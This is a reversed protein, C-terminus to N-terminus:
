LKGTESVKRRHSADTTGSVTLVGSKDRAAVAMVENFASQWDEDLSARLAQDGSGAALLRTAYATVAPMFPLLIDDVNDAEATWRDLMRVYHLTVQLPSLTATILRVLVLKVPNVGIIDYLYEKTGAPTASTARRDDRFPKERMTTPEFRTDQKGAEPLDIFYMQHFNKPLNHVLVLNTIDAFHDDASPTVRQSQVVFWGEDSAVLARWIKSKGEELAAIKDEKEISGAHNLRLKLNVNRLFDGVTFGTVAM